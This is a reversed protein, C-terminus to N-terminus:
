FIALSLTHNRLGHQCVRTCFDRFPPPPILSLNVKSPAKRNGGQEEEMQKQSSTTIREDKDILTIKAGELENSFRIEATEVVCNSEIPSLEASKDVLTEHIFSIQTDDKVSPSALTSSSEIDKTLNAQGDYPSSGRGHLVRELESNSSGFSEPSDKEYYLRMESESIYNCVDDSHASQDIITEKSINHSPIPSGTELAGMRAVEIEINNPSSSKVSGEIDVQGLDSDPSQLVPSQRSLQGRIPGRKGGNKEREVEDLNAPGSQAERNGNTPMKGVQDHSLELQIGGESQARNLNNNVNQNHSENSLINDLTSTSDEDVINDTNMKVSITDNNVNTKEVSQEVDSKPEINIDGSTEDLTQVSREKNNCEKKDQNDNAVQVASMQMDRQSSSSQDNGNAPLVNRIDDSAQNSPQIIVDDVHKFDSNANCSQVINGDISGPDSDRNASPSNCDGPSIQMDTHSTELPELCKKFRSPLHSIGHEGPPSPSDGPSPYWGPSLPSMDTMVSYGPLLPKNKREQQYGTPSPNDRVKEVNENGNENLDRPSEGNGISEGNESDNRHVIQVQFNDSFSLKKQVSVASSPLLAQGSRSGSPTDTKPMKPVTGVLDSHQVSQSLFRAPLKSQLSHSLTKQHGQGQYLMVQKVLNPQTPSPSPSKTGQNNRHDPLPSKEPTTFASSRSSNQGSGYPPTDALIEVIRPNQNTPESHPPSLHNTPESHPTSMHSPVPGSDSGSHPSREPTTFASSRSSGRWSKNSGWDAEFDHKVKVDSPSGTVENSCGTMYKPSGTAAIPSVDVQNAGSQASTDSPGSYPSKNPSTFASSLSDSASKANPTSAMAASIMNMYCGRLSAKRLEPPQSAVLQNWKELQDRTLTGGNGAENEVHAENQNDSRAENQINTNNGEAPLPVLQPLDMKVEQVPSLPTDPARVGPLDAKKVNAEYHGLICM